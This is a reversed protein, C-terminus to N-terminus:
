VARLRGLAARLAGALRERESPPLFSGVVVARGHSWLRLPTSPGAPEELEVRLWHPRLAETNGRGKPDIRQITLWEPTLRLKECRRAARYSARFAWYILLIDAGMFGIVPWAGAVFVAGGAIASVGIVAAMLVRFGKMSLSRHPRLEADFVVPGPDSLDSPALSADTVIGKIKRRAWAFDVSGSGGSSRM